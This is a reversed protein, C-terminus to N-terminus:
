SMMELFAAELSDHSGRLEAPPGSVVVRGHDLFVVRDCREVEDFYASALLITSGNAHLVELLQWFELRSIPDVGTTPEDLLLVPPQHLLACVLTLKQKMGGSLEGALSSRRGTLGAFELLATASAEAQEPELGYVAGFFAVNESVTLDPYLHFGQQAFGLRAQGRRGPLVRGEDVRLLGSVCRLLTTKGAGDAGVVGVLEGAPIALDVHDLAVTRGFRKLVGEALIETL